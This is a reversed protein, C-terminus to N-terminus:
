KGGALVMTFILVAYCIEFDYFWVEMHFLFSNVFGM